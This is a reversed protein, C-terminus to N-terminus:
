LMDMFKTRVVAAIEPDIDASNEALDRTMGMLAEFLLESRTPEFSVTMERADDSTVRSELPGPYSISTVIRNPSYPAASIVLPFFLALAANTLIPTEETQM